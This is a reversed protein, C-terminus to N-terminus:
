ASAGDSVINEIIFDRKTNERNKLAELYDPNKLELPTWNRRKTNEDPEQM